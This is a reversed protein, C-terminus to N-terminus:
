AGALRAGCSKCFRADADNDTGCQRCESPLPAELMQEDEVEPALTAAVDSTSAEPRSSIRGGMRAALDREILERYGGGDLQRILGAARARLRGVMDQYDGESVKRMARDFEVEKISRLVLMKERELAARTRGGLMETREVVDTSTLPVLSRYAAAAVLAAAAIALTVTAINVVSSGRTVVVSAAVAMAAGLVLLHWPRLGGAAPAAAPESVPRRSAGQSAQQPRAQRAAAGDVRRKKGRPAAVDSKM